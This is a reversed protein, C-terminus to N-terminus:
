LKRFHNFTSFVKQWSINKLVNMCLLMLGIHAALFLDQQKIKYRKDGMLCGSWLLLRCLPCYDLHCLVLACVIQNMLAFPAYKRLPLREVWKLFNHIHDSWSLSSELWLGLLKAKEVQQIPQGAIQLVLTPDLALRQNSGFLMCITKSINLVLKNTKM